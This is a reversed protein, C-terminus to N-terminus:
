VKGKLSEPYSPTKHEAKQITKVKLYCETDHQNLPHLKKSKLRMQSNELEAFTWNNFRTLTVLKDGFKISKPQSKLKLNTSKFAYIRAL